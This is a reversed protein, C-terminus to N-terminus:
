CSGVQVRMSKLIVFREPSVILLPNEILQSHLFNFGDSWCWKINGQVFVLAYFFFFAKSVLSHVHKSKSPMSIKTHCAILWRSNKSNKTLNSNHLIVPCLNWIHEYKDEHLMYYRVCLGFRDVIVHCVIKATPLRLFYILLALWM